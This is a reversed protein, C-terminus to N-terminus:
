RLCNSHLQVSEGPCSALGDCSTSCSKSSLVSILINLHIIPIYLISFALVLSILPWELTVYRMKAMFKGGVWGKTVSWLALGYGGGGNRLAWGVVVGRRNVIFFYEALHRECTTDITGPHRCVCDRPLGPNCLDCMWQKSPNSFISPRITTYNHDGYKCSTDNFYTCSFLILWM